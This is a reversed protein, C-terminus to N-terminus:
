LIFQVMDEAYFRYNRLEDLLLEYTPFCFFMNKSLPKCSTCPLYCPSKASSITM